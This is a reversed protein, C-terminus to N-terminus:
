TWILELTFQMNTNTSTGGDSEIQFKTDALFTNNSVPSLTQVSGAAAGNPVTITGMSTGADNRFTLVTAAGATASQPVAVIKVIQCPKAIGLYRSGATGIDIFAAFMQERNLNKVTSPDIASSPTKVWAGSGAGDAVYITNASAVEVGKPEHLESGTLDSHRPM